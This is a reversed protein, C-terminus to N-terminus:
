MVSVCIIYSHFCGTKYDEQICERICYVIAFVNLYHVITVLDGILDTYMMKLQTNKAQNNIRTSFTGGLWLQMIGCRYVALRGQTHMDVM